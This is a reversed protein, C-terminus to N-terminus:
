FQRPFFYEANKTLVRGSYSTSEYSTPGAPLWYILPYNNKEDDAGTAGSGMNSATPLIGRMELCLDGVTNQWNMYDFFGANEPPVPLLYKSFNTMVTNIAPTKEIGSLAILNDNQRPEDTINTYYTTTYSPGPSPGTTGPDLDPTPRGPTTITDCTKADQCTTPTM